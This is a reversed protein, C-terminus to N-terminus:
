NPQKPKSSPANKGGLYVKRALLRGDPAKTYSGTVLDGVAFEEFRADTSGKLLKTEKTLNFVRKGVTLTRATKDVATVKGRFPLLKQQAKTNQASSTANTIAGGPNIQAPIALAASLVLLVLALAFRLIRQRM